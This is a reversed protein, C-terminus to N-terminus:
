KRTALAAGAGAKGSDEVRQVRFNLGQIQTGMQNFGDAIDDPDVMQGRSPIVVTLTTEQPKANAAQLHFDRLAEAAARVEVSSARLAEAQATHADRENELSFIEEELPMVEQLHEWYARLDEITRALGLQNEDVNRLTTELETIQLMRAPNGLESGWIAMDAAADAGAATLRAARDISAELDGMDPLGGYSEAMKAIAEMQARAAEKQAEAAQISSSGVNTFLGFVKGDKDFDFFNGIQNGWNMSEAEAEAIKVAMDAYAQALIAQQENMSFQVQIEQLSNLHRIQRGLDEELRVLAIQAQWQAHQANLLDLAAQKMLIQSNIEAALLDYQLAAIEDLGNVVDQTSAGSSSKKVRPEATLQNSYSDYLLGMDWPASGSSSGGGGGSSAQTDRIKKQIDAIGQAGELAAKFVGGSAATVARVAAAMAATADVWAAALDVVRSKQERVLANIQGVNAAYESFVQQRSVQYVTITQVIDKIIGEITQVLEIGIKAIDFAMGLTVGAPGALGAVSTLSGIVQGLGQNVAAAPAGMGIIQSALGEVQPIMGMISGQSVLVMHDLDMVQQKKAEVLDTEAKVIQENAKTIEEAHKEANKTANEDLDERVRALKEEADAVKETAKAKKEDSDAAAADAKAEDVKKQADDLKRQEDKSLGGESSEMDALAKRAEELATEKEALNDLHGLHRARSALLSEEADLFEAMVGAGPINLGLGLVRRASQRATVGEVSTSDAAEALWEAAGELAVVSSELARAVEPFDRFFQNLLATTEPPLMMEDRGSTNRVLAGSPVIGGLDRTFLEPLDIIGGLAYGGARDYAAPLSGYRSLAYNISSRINSEPDWIDNYGPDANTAFTDDRMQMLGKTPWGEIANQDWNNQAAPDGTSEQNMRRLLNDALSESLGKERLISEVLPRYSEIDGSGFWGKITDGFATLKDLAWDKVFTGLTKLAAGPVEGWAGFGEADFTPIAGLIRDALGDFWGLPNFRSGGAGPVDDLVINGDEWRLPNQTAWHVHNGHDANTGPGFDYPAGNSLNQWGDLPHHILEASNPFNTYIANALAKSWPTPMQTQFHGDQAQWDTAKGTSHHGTDTFRMASTLAFMDPFFRGIFSGHSQQIESLGGALNMFGGSAHAQYMGGTNFHSTTLYKEVGREGQTRAVYNISDVWDKGLVKGAEPRLVPEGGSLDLVGGTPSYFRHVDRGPTYGPMMGGDAFAIKPVEPLRADLGVKEAVGDFVKKIGQNYVFEIIFNIPDALKKKLGEWISSIADVGTQFWGKLTDLGSQLGGFVTGVIFDKVVGLGDAMLRFYSGILGTDNLFKDRVWEVTATFADFVASKIWNWTNVFFDGVAQWAASLAAAIVVWNQRVMETYSNWADFVTSRITGWVSVFLDSVSQWAASLADTITQWNERVMETYSTWADFVGSKITEWVGLFTDSMSQWAESLWGTTAAWGDSIAAFVPQLASEWLWTGLAAFADLTPKIQNEWAYTFGDSLLNWAIMIPALVVTGIIAVLYQGATVFGDFVPKIFGEYVSTFVDGLTTWANKVWDIAGVAADRLTFFFAIIPSDEEIGFASSMDGTYDGQWLSTIGNWADSIWGTFATFKETIWDIGAGIKETVWDWGDALATTFTEWMKQGTETQTFFYTLGAVLAAIAIVALMIPNAAMVANFALQVGTAIKTVAQWGKVALTWAGWAAAAGGIAATLPGLWTENEKVWGVLDQFGPIIQNQVVDWLWMFADGALGQVTGKLANLRGDLSNAITDAAAQSSGEFGAMGDEVGTLSQLFAPIGEVGLDELPTGFLEVAKAARVGPDEIDLLKTATDQLAQQAADGGEAVATAMDSANIGISEFAEAKAPDIAFLSFEKLADGTKDLAIKGNEAQSILLSFAEEGSLGLNAFNVGYENIIEPLEDRMQAPVRQMATTMMDAASEVDSALGNTILQGATQTAEAMDVEFVKSFALFNDSLEGATQEGESGLYKWQSELAGIANAAEEASGAVGSSLAERISDGVGDAAGDTYGLQMNILSIEGALSKGLGAFGAVGAIGAFAGMLGGLKGTLGDFLGGADDADAGAKELDDGFKRSSDAAGSQADELKGLTKNLDDLQDKHKREAVTVDIESQRLDDTAKKVKAKEDKVRALEKLGSDGKAVAAKYKNEADELRLTSAELKDQQQERKSVSKEHARDLQDLKGTSAKVQKELNAVAGDLPASMAKGAREGAQKAPKELREAFEKSMGKFVPVVPVSVFGTSSM